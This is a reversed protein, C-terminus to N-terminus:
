EGKRADAPPVAVAVQARPLTQLQASWTKLSHQMSQQLAPLGMDDLSGVEPEMGLTAQVRSLAEQVKAMSQYRRAVSLISVVDATIRDLRGAMQSQEQSSAILALQTDVDAIADARQYQRVADDYQHYSLHVQTFVAMQLALRRAQAVKEATEAARKQSPASLLSLLNFSVRWSAENWQQDILFSDNDRKRGYDFTIGPMLKLIAKRTEDASIRVNYAAERLDANGTIAQDEMSELTLGLDKPPAENPEILVLRAGPAVGMLSALETRASSLERQLAELQRLNELLNRQFRLSESPARVKSAQMGRSDNLALEADAIAAGVRQSLAQAALARWYTTRVNQILTHMSKRRREVSILLRDSSQKANYYSAGFDLLGWSITVDNTSHKRDSSIFPTGNSFNGNADASRRTLDSDRSSYGANTLLKPLMDYRGAELQGSALAQEMLKVRHELNYKLARAMAEELTVPGTIPEVNKQFAGMETQAQLQIESTKLPEPSISSCGVLAIAASAVALPKFFRSPSM